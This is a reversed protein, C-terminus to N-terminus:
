EMGGDKIAIEAAASLITPCHEKVGPLDTRIAELLTEIKAALEDNYESLTDIRSNMHSLADNISSVLPFQSNRLQDVVDILRDMGNRLDYSNFGDVNPQSVLKPATM